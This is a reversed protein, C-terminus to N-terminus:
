PTKGGESEAAPSPAPGSPQPAAAQPLLSRLVAKGEDTLGSGEAAIAGQIAEEVGQPLPQQPAPASTELGAEPALGRAESPAISSAVHPRECGLVAANLVAIWDVSNNDLKFALKNWDGSILVPVSPLQPPPVVRLKVKQSLNRNAVNVVGKSNIEVDTGGVALGPVSKMIGSQITYEAELKEFNTKQKLDVQFTKKSGFIYGSILESLCFNNAERKVDIGRFNGKAMKFKAKGELSHAMADISPGAAKVAIDSDTTGSLFPKGTFQTIVPEAAVGTLNLAIDASPKAGAADLTIKGTAKGGSVAADEIDAVLKGNDLRTKVRVAKIDINGFEVTDGTLVIDLDAGKLKGLSLDSNDWTPKESGPKLGRTEEDADAASDSAPEPSPSAAAPQGTQIARMQRAFGAPDAEVTLEVTATGDDGEPAVSRTAAAASQGSLSSLDIKPMAVAGTLRPREGALSLAGDIKATTTGLVVNAAELAIEKGRAKITGDLSAAEGGKALTSTPDIWHALDGLAPTALKAAGSYQAEGTLVTEGDLTAKLHPGELTLKMNTPLGATAMKLDAFTADFDAPEGHFALRGKATTQGSKADSTVTAGIDEFSVPEAGDAAPSLSVKGNKVVATKPWAVAGASAGPKAGFDLNSKGKDDSRVDLVPTDLTIDVVEPNFSWPPSWNLNFHLDAGKATLLKGPMGSPNGVSIDEAHVTLPSGLALRATGFSVSRGTADSAFRAMRSTLGGSTALWVELAGAVILGAIVIAVLRLVTGLWSGTKKPAAEAPPAPENADTPM